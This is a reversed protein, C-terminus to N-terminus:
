IRDDAADSTYLLCTQTPQFQCVGKAEIRYTTGPVLPADPVLVQTQHSGQTVTAPVQTGDPLLLRVTSSDVSELLPPVTVLGPVNAPVVGGDEPLPFRVGVMCNPAVCARAPTPILLGLGTLFMGVASWKWTNERM